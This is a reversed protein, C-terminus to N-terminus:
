GKAYRSPPRKVGLNERLTKGEYEKRFIGRRQLEPVVKDVFDEMGGPLVSPQIIFGDAARSEFWEQLGDAIQKPTGFLVHSGRAGSYQEYMQRVTVHGDRILERVRKGPATDEPPMLHEPFPQNVDLDGFEIYGLQSGLLEIGVQPHIKSQLWEYERKAEDETDAVIIAMGPMLKLDDAERGCAVVREKIDKYIAQATSMKLQQIFVADAVAAALGRGDDSVGAQILVPYGQPPRAMNLPGAVEFFEGKHNLQHLKKPDFYVGTETDRVFADDDYSDWLGKVIDVFEHARRYRDAHSYHEERGFNPAVAPNATTVINWAARGHSIHDLSGFLRALNYPELYSTTATAGFGIHKTVAAMASYITLPEFHAMYQPWRSLGDLNGRRTAPADALFMMDFKGREALKAMELFHEVNSGADKCSRPHMWAAVHHGTMHIHCALKMMRKTEAM